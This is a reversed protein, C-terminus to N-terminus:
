KGINKSTVIKIIGFFNGYQYYTILMRKSVKVSSGRNQFNGVLSQLLWDQSRWITGKTITGFRMCAGATDGFKAVEAM